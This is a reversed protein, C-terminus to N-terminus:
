SMRLRLRKGSHTHNRSDSGRVISLNDKMSNCECIYVLETVFPEEGGEAELKFDMPIAMVHKLKDPQLCEDLM